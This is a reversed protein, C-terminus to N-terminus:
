AAAAQKLLRGLLPWQAPGWEATCAPGACYILGSTVWEVRLGDRDPRLFGEAGAAYLLPAADHDQPRAQAYPCAFGITIDPRRLGLARKVMRLWGGAQWTLDQEASIHGLAHMRAALRPVQHLCGNLPRPRWRESIDDCAWRVAAPVDQDLTLIAALVDPNVVTIAGWITGPTTEGRATDRELAAALAPWLAALEAITGDIDPPM